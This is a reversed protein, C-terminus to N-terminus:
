SNPLKPVAPGTGPQRTQRVRATTGAVGTGLLRQLIRDIRGPQDPSRYASLFGRRRSRALDGRAGGPGAPSHVPEAGTTAARRDSGRDGAACGDLAGADSQDVPAVGGGSLGALDGGRRARNVSVPGVGGGGGNVLLRLENSLTTREDRSVAPRRSRAPEPTVRVGPGTRLRPDHSSLV